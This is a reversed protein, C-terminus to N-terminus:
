VPEDKGMLKHWMSKLRYPANGLTWSNQGPKQSAQFPQPSSQMPLLDKSAQERLQQAANSPETAQRVLDSYDGPHRNWSAVIKPKVPQQSTQPPQPQQPPPQSTAPQRPRSQDQKTSQHQLAQALAPISQTQQSSTPQSPVQAPQSHQLAQAIAPISQQNNTPLSQQTQPQQSTAPQSHQLAQALGPITQQPQVAPPANHRAGAHLLLEGRAVVSPSAPARVSVIRPRGPM